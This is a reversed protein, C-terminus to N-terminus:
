NEDSNKEISLYIFLYISIFYILLHISLYNSHKSHLEVDMLDVASVTCRELVDKMQPVLAPATLVCTTRKATVRIVFDV